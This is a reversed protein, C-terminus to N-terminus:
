LSGSRRERSYKKGNYSSLIIITIALIVSGKSRALSQALRKVGMVQVFIVFVVKM